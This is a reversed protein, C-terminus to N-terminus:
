GTARRGRSSSSSPAGTSRSTPLDRANIGIVEAGLAVARDLEAADHAEVLTDLGLEAAYAQLAAAREDDLDRLLLLM